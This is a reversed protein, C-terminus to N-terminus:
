ALVAVTPCPNLKSWIPTYSGVIISIYADTLSTLDFKSEDLGHRISRMTTDTSFIEVWCTLVVDNAWTRAISSRYLRRWRFNISRSPPLLPPPIPPM